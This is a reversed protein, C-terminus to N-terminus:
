IPLFFSFLYLLSVAHGNGKVGSMPAYRGCMIVGDSLNLWLNEKLECGPKACIWGDYSM